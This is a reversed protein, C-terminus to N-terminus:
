VGVGADAAHEGRGIAADDAGTVGLAGAAGMGLDHRQAVGGGLTM